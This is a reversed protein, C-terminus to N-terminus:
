LLRLIAPGSSQVIPSDLAGLQRQILLALSYASEKTVDAHVLDAACTELTSILTETFDRRIELLSAHGVFVQLSDQVACLAAEVARVAAELRDARAWDEAVSLALGGPIDPRAVHRPEGPIALKRTANGPHAAFHITLTDARAKILNIGNYSADETLPDIQQLAANFQHALRERGVKDAAPLSRAALVLAKMQKLTEALAELADTTTRLVQLGELINGKIVSLEGAFGMLSRAKYFSMADDVASDVASGTALRHQLAALLDPAPLPSPLPSRPPSAPFVSSNAM